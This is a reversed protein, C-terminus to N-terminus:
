LKKNSSIVNTLPLRPEVELRIRKLEERLLIEDECLEELIDECLSWKREKSQLFNEKRDLAVKLRDIEVNLV